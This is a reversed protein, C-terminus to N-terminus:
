PVLIWNPPLKTLFTEFDKVSLPKSFYYGQIYQCEREHLFNLQEVTEVGEALTKIGLEKAMALIASVITASGSKTTV